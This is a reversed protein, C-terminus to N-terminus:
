MLINGLPSAFINCIEGEFKQSCSTEEGTSCDYERVENSLVVCFRGNLPNLTMSRLDGSPVSASFLEAGDSLRWCSLKNQNRDDRAESVVILTEDNAGFCVTYVRGFYRDLIRKGTTLNWIVLAGDINTPYINGHMSIPINQRVKTNLVMDYLYESFADESWLQSGANADWVSICHELDMTVIRTDDGFFRAGIRIDSTLVITVLKNGSHTDWVCINKGSTVLKTGVSNL